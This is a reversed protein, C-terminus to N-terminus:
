NNPVGEFYAIGAAEPLIYEIYHGLEPAEVICTRLFGPTHGKSIVKVGGADLEKELAQWGAEDHIFYGLHHYRIAFEGEPLGARFLESGPGDAQTIELLAGGAWAFEVRIHGGAPLPGEMRRFDKVGYRDRFVGLAREIDNTVYAIQFHDNRYLGAGPAFLPTPRNLLDNV